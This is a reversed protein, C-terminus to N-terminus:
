TTLMVDPAMSSVQVDASKAATSALSVVNAPARTDLSGDLTDRFSYRQCRIGSVGPSEGATRTVGFAPTGTPTDASARGCWTAHVTVFTVCCRFCQPRM